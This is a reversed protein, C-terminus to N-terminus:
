TVFKKRLQSTKCFNHVSLDKIGVHAGECTINNSVSYAPCTGCGTASIEYHVFSCQLPTNWEFTLKGTGSVNVNVLHTETALVCVSMSEVVIMASLTM